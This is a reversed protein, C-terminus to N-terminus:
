FHGLNILILQSLLDLTQVLRQEFKAKDRHSHFIIRTREFSDFVHGNNKVSKRNRRFIIWGEDDDDEYRHWRGIKLWGHHYFFKM